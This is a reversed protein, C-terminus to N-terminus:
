LFILEPFPSLTDSQVTEPADAMEKASNTDVADKTVEPEANKTLKPNDAKPSTCAILIITALLIRKM